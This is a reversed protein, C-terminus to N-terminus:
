EANTMEADVRGMPRLYQPPSRHDKIQEVVAEQLIHGSVHMLTDKYDADQNMSALCPFHHHLMGAEFEAEDVHMGILRAAVYQACGCTSNKVVTASGIKKDADVTIAFQPRGFRQAFQAIIPDDYHVVIPPSNYTTETLSCFPKPFVVAAHLDALWKRLQQVLGPPVSENRDIPAIVSKAGTLKVIDPILQIVGATDGLALVLDAQPLQPPLYDDPDDIVLPLARPASWQHLTWGGPCTRRINDAIREGWQGQTVALLTLRATSVM